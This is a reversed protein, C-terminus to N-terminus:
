SAKLNSTETTILNFLNSPVKPTIKCFLEEFKQVETGIKKLLIESEHNLVPNSEVKGESVKRITNHNWCCVAQM